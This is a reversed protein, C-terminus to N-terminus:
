ARLIIFCIGPMIPPLPPMPERPPMIPPILPPLLRGNQRMHLLSRSCKCTCDTFDAAIAANSLPLILEIFLSASGLAAPLLILM